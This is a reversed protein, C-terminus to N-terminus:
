GSKWRAASLADQERTQVWRPGAPTLERKWFPAQTKLADILFECARFADSRHTSATVVLVIADTPHLAGVRHIIRGGALSWRARAEELLQHLVKETMGPYHELVMEHVAQGHNLDRLIGVFSVMAGIGPLAERLARQEQEPDFTQLQVRVDFMM